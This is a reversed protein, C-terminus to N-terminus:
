KKWRRFHDTVDVGGHKMVWRFAMLPSIENPQIHPYVNAGAARIVLTQAESCDCSHNNDPFNIKFAKRLFFALCSSYGYASGVLRRAEDEAGRLYPVDLQIFRASKDHVYKDPSHLWVGPYPDSPEKVGRSEFTSGLIMVFSHTINYKEADSFYQIAKDLDSDGGVFGLILKDM